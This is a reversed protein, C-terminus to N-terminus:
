EKPLSQSRRPGKLVWARARATEFLAKNKQNKQLEQKEFTKEKEQCCSELYFPCKAVKVTHTNNQLELEFDDL